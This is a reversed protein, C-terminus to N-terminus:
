TERPKGWDRWAITATSQILGRGSREVNQGIWQESTMRGNSAVNIQAVSLTTLYVVFLCVFVDDLLQFQKRNPLEQTWNEARPVSIRLSSKLPKGWVGLRVRCCRWIPWSLKRGPSQAVCAAPVTLRLRTEWQPSAVAFRDLFFYVVSLEYRTAM